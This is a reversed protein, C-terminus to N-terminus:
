TDCFIYIYRKPGAPIPHSGDARCRPLPCYLNDELIDRYLFDPGTCHRYNIDSSKNM